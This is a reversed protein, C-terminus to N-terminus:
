GTKFTRAASYPSTAAQNGAVVRWYYSSQALLGGVAAVTDPTDVTALVSATGFDAATALEVRHTLSSAPRNWKLAGGRPFNQEGDSPYALIPSSIPLSFSILTSLNSENNNRDLSSVAYSYQVGPTDIRAPPTATTRGMLAILNRSDELDAPQYSSSKFRYVVYRAATDGDSAPVPTNWQLEFLNTATNFTSRLNQPREPPTQEKWAMVPIIAPSRFLDAKLLDTFGGVNDRVFNARFQINGHVSPNSRNLKIQNAVESAPGFSTGIRYTANGTYVHRGNAQSAWWPMLKGYDQGGGISWYLQPAIYDIYQGKLWAVADCYIVTYNDAGSTGEPVGNKWIGRPSMGWKVNLKVAKISDYVQKILLNVNNRRWDGIDTFGRPDARLTATDQTTIGEQYFYDDMHAGDVDYRRVVDAIIKAVHDRVAQLGPNLFRYSGIQIIWDPHQVSVHNLALQYDGADREARYPNFWAHLEMGRKHAEQIAFQLPDYNDGPPSGQNGTLWYSWPEYPSNYFADCEPRVQFIVANLGAAVLQDLLSVLEDRQQQPSFLNRNSTSPWDLNTVTAIWAGRFERKPPAQASSTLLAFIFLLVAIGFRYCPKM